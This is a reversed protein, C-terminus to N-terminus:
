ISVPQKIEEVKRAWFRIAGWSAEFDDVRVNLNEFGRDSVDYISFGGTKIPFGKEIEIDQPSFFRLHRVDNGNSLKLDLFTEFEENLSRNFCFSIIEYEWSRELIPHNINEAEHM